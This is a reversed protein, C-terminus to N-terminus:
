QVADTHVLVGRASARRAIEAVPQIAGIENNALMVSVLGTRPGIAAEIAAPDAIGREDVPVRTVELGWREELDRAAELVDSHAGLAAAVQARARDLADGARRGLPYLNSPNGFEGRLYPEMAQLVSPHIPTTSAYDLYVPRTM